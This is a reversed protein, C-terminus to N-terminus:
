LVCLSWGTAPKQSYQRGNVTVFRDAFQVANSDSRYKVLKDMLWFQNGKLDCQAFINEAIVNASYEAASGDPFEM